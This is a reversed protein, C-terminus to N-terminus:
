ARYQATEHSQRRAGYTGRIRNRQDQRGSEPRLYDLHSTDVNLELTDKYLGTVEAKARDLQQRIKDYAAQMDEKSDKVPNRQVPAQKANPQKEKTTSQPLKKSGAPQKGKM